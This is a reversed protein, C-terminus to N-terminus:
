LWKVKTHMQKSVENLIDEETLGTDRFMDKTDHLYDKSIYSQISKREDSIEADLYDDGYKYKEIDEDEEEEIINKDYVRQQITYIPISYDDVDDGYQQIDDEIHEDVGKLLEEPSEWWMNNMDDMSYSMSGSVRNDKPDYFDLDLFYRIINGNGLEIDKDLHLKEIIYLDINKM